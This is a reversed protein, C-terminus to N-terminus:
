LCARPINRHRLQLLLAPSAWAQARRTRTRYTCVVLARGQPDSGLLCQSETRLPSRSGVRRQGSLYFAWTHTTISSALEKRNRIYSKKFFYHLRVTQSCIQTAGLSAATPTLRECVQQHKGTSCTHQEETPRPLAHLHRTPTYHFGQVRAGSDSQTV